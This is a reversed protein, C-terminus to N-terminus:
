PVSGLYLYTHIHIYVCIYLTYTYTYILILVDDTGPDRRSLGQRRRKRNGCRPMKESFPASSTSAELANIRTRKARDSDRLRQIQVDSLAKASRLRTLADSAEINETKLAVNVEMADGLDYELLGNQDMQQQQADRHM